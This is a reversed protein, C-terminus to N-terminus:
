SVFEVLINGAHGKGNATAEARKEADWMAKYKDRLELLRHLPHKSVVEGAIVKQSQDKTARGLIVAEVAEYIKQADSRADYGDSQAAFDPLVEITGSDVLRREDGSTAYAQWAYVGAAYDATTAAALTVLHDVGSAAATIEILTSSRVLAYTLEWTPAPYDSLAIEWQVYDGAVIEAPETTPIETM